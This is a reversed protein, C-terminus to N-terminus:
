QYFKLKHQNEFPYGWFELILPYQTEISYIGNNFTTKSRIQELTLQIQPCDLESTLFNIGVVLAELIATKGSGNDGVLVNFGESFRITKDEFGRFNQMRMETIKM